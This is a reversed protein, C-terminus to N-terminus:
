GAGARARCPCPAADVALVDRSEGELFRELHPLLHPHHELAGRQEVRHGHELVDGIRQALVRLEVVVLDLLAHALLQSNTSRSGSWTISCSGDSSEPPMRLRTPMARPM